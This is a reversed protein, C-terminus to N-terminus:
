KKKMMDRIALALAEAPAKKLITAKPNERVAIQSAEQQKKQTDTQKKDNM